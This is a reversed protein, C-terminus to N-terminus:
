GNSAEACQDCIQQGTGVARECCYSCKLALYQGKVADDEMLAGARAWAEKRADATARVAAGKCRLCVDGTTYRPGFRQTGFIIKPFHQFTNALREDCTRCRKLLQTEHPPRVNRELVMGAQKLAKRYQSM